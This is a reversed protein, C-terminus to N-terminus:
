RSGGEVEIREAVFEEVRAVTHRMRRSREACVWEFSAGHGVAAIAWQTLLDRKRSRDAHFHATTGISM